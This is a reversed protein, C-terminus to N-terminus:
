GSYLGNNEALSSHNEEPINWFYYIGFTKKVFFIKLTEEDIM